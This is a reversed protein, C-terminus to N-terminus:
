PTPEAEPTTSTQRFFILSDWCDLRRTVRGGAVTIWMMGPIDIHSGDVEARFRYNVVVEISDGTGTPSTGVVTDVVTYRRHEFTAFFGPLRRAYEDRGVCGAGLASHHENRFDDSVLRAVAETDDGGLATLYATAVAHGDAGSKM